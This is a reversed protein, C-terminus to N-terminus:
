MSKEDAYARMKTVDLINYNTLFHELKTVTLHTKIELVFM